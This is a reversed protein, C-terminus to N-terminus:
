IRINGPTGHPAVWHVELDELFDIVGRSPTASGVATKTSLPSDSYRRPSTGAVVADDVAASQLSRHM